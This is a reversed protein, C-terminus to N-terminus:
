WFTTKPLRFFHLFIIFLCSSVLSLPHFFGSFFCFLAFPTPPSLSLSISLSHAKATDICGGFPCVHEGANLMCDGPTVLIPHSSFSYFVSTSLTISLTITLSLSFSLLLSVIPLWFLLILNFFPLSTSPLHALFSTSPLSSFLYM